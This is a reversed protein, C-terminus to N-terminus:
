RRKSGGLEHSVEETTKIPPTLAIQDSDITQITSGDKLTGGEFIYHPGSTLFRRPSAISVGDIGAIVQRSPPEAKAAPAATAAPTVITQHDLEIGRLTPAAESLRKILGRLHPENTSAASVQLVGDGRYTVTASQGHSALYEQAFRVQEDAVMAKVQVGTPGFVKKLIRLEADSQVWGGIIPMGNADAAIRTEPLGLSRLTQAAVETASLPRQEASARASARNAQVAVIGMLLGVGLIGLALRGARHVRDGREPWRHLERLHELDPDILRLFESDNTQSRLDTQSSIGTQSSIQASSEAERTALSELRLTVPGISLPESLPWISFEALPDSEADKPTAEGEGQPSVPTDFLCVRIRVADDSVSLMVHEIEVGADLLVLDCHDGSGILWQGPALVHEAGAHLGDLVHLRFTM